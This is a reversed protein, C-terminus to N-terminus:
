RVLETLVMKLLLRDKFDSGRGGSLEGAYYNESV